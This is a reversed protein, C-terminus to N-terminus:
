NKNQGDIIEKLIKLSKERAETLKKNAFSFDIKKDVLSMDHIDGPIRDGLDTLRLISLNRSETNNNPLIEIFDTNFNIAFATGHFSDTIMLAANKVYALFEGMDPCLVLKGERNIQHLFPSIRILRLGLKEAARQAYEGLRKDNHIQYVLVYEKHPVSKIYASWEDATLLLTPDLVQEAEIGLEYLFDVASDERVAINDYASLYKKFIGKVDDSFETKGFSSGFASKRGKNVFNLCYSCDIAGDAVPGWVQDSGTIYIDAEPPSSKLQGPSSYLRTLNLHEKRTKAFRRGALISEPQRLALYLAKKLPNSSWDPKQKVLTKEVNKYNEDTRIYDIIECQCGTKEIVKQTALAQLLSGYNSIAHRTIVAAKM